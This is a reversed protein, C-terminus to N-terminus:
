NVELVILLKGNKVTVSQLMSKAMKQKMDEDSLTFLPRNSMTNDLAYQGLEQAKAYYQAPIQDIELQTLKPNHLYFSGDQKKYSVAGTIRARGTGQIGGPATLRVNTFVGVENGGELLDIKPDSIVVKVFFAEKELPMLASLQKQLQQQTLEVTYQYAYAHHSLLILIFSVTIDTIRKMM